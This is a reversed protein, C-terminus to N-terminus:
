APAVLQKQVMEELTRAVSAECAAREVSFQRMLDDVVATATQPTALSEWISAATANLAVYNGTDMNLIVFSDDIQSGVWGDTRQYQTM